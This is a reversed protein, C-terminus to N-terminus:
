AGAGSPVRKGYGFTATPLPAVAWSASANPSTPKVEFASVSRFFCVDFEMFFNAQGLLMRVSDTQTWAFALRVPAFSGVTASIVVGRAPVLALNGSLVIATRQEEWVLGLQEGISYPLVNVAAGTDLLGTVAIERGRHSLKVPLLPM